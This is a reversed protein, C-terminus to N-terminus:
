GLAIMLAIKDVDINLLKCLNVDINPGGNGDDEQMSVDQCSAQDGAGAKKAGSNGDIRLRSCYGGFEDQFSVVM